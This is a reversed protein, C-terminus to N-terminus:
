PENQDNRHHCNLHVRFVDRVAVSLSHAFEPNIRDFDSDASLSDDDSQTKLLSCNSKWSEMSSHRSRHFESIALHLVSKDAALNSNVTLVFCKLHLIQQIFRRRSFCISMQSSVTISPSLLNAKPWNDQEGL